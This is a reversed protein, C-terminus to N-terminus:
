AIHEGEIAFDALSLLLERASRLYFTYVLFSGNMPEFSRSVTIALALLMELMIIIHQVMLWMQPLYDRANVKELLM